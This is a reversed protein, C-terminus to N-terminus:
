PGLRERLEDLTYRKAVKGAQAKYFNPAM